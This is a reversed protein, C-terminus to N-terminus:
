CLDVSMGGFRQHVEVSSCPTIVWLNMNKMTVVTLIGFELLTPNLIKIEIKCM